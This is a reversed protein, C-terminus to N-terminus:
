QKDALAILPLKSFPFDLLRQADVTRNASKKGLPSCEVEELRSNLSDFWRFRNYSDVDQDAITMVAILAPLYLGNILYQGEPQNNAQERAISFRKSDSESMVIAIRNGELRLDWYGPSQHPEETHEFISSVPAEDVTDIWYEKPRDEALVAGTNVRFKRGNFDEHWSTSSFQFLEATSVLYTALEIRGSLDGATLTEEICPHFSSLLKRYHVKPSRILLAYKAKQQRVLRLLEPDSLEFEARILVTLGAREREVTIDVEFESRPYDNGHPQLVPYPWVKGRDFRM